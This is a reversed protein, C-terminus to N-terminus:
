RVLSLYDRVAPNSTDIPLSNLNVNMTCTWTKSGNDTNLRRTNQYIVDYCLAKALCSM